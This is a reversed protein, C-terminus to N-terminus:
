SGANLDVPMLEGRQKEEKRARGEGDRYINGYSYKFHQNYCRLTM